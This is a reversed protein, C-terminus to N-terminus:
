SIGTFIIRVLFGVELVESESKESGADYSDVAPKPNTSQIGVTRAGSIPCARQARKQNLFGKLIFRFLFVLAKTM